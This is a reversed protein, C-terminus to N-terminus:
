EDDDSDAWSEFPHHAQSLPCQGGSFYEPKLSEDVHDSWGSIDQDFSKANMFMKSMNTVKGVNWGSINGNFGYAGYFMEKMTTVKSVDWESLDPNFSMSIYSFLGAMLTVNSVDWGSPDLKKCASAQYFMKSMNEVNGVDWGSINQNFKSNSMFLRRMSTVESTDTFRVDKGHSIMTSLQDATVTIWATVTYSETSGDEASVTYTAPSSFDNTTTGSIQITEGVKVTVNESTTFTAILNKANIDKDGDEYYIDEYPVTLAIDTGSIVGSVPPNLGELSFSFIAKENSLEPSCWYLWRRCNPLMMMVAHVRELMREIHKINKELYDLQKRLAMRRVSRNPCSKKRYTIFDRYGESGIYYQLYPTEQIQEVTKEDPIQLKKKIILSGLVKRFSKAPAGM